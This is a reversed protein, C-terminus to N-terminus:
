CKHRIMYITVELKLIPTECFALYSALTFIIRTRKSHNCLDDWNHHERTFKSHHRYKLVDDLRMMHTWHRNKISAMYWELIPTMNPLTVVYPGCVNIIVLNYFSVLLKTVSVNFFIVWRIILPEYFTVLVDTEVGRLRINGLHVQVILFLALFRLVRPNILGWFFCLVGVGSVHHLGHSSM